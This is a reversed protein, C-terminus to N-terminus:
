PRLCGMHERSIRMRVVIVNAIRQTKPGPRGAKRIAPNPLSAALLAAQQPTLKSASTKFHHRAAAEAGFIGPGWEVINLYIEMLRRKPLFLTMVYALPVEIVKRVYSRGPWLFLNKTTQMPITSAGRLKRGREADEWVKEVANWDVGWHECFRSDEAAIVAAPLHRSINELPVWQQRVQGGSLLRGAMFTSLPPNIFRYACVLIFIYVVIVLPLYAIAKLWFRGRRQEASKNLVMDMRSM